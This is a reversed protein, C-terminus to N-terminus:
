YRGTRLEDLTVPLSQGLLLSITQAYGTARGKGFDSSDAARWRRALEVVVFGIHDFVQDPDFVQTTLM